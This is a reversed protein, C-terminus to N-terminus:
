AQCFAAPRPSADLSREYREIRQSAESVDIADWSAEIVDADFLLMLLQTPSNAIGPIFNRYGKGGTLEVLQGTVENFCYRTKGYLDTLRM